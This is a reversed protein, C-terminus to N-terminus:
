IPAGDVIVIKPAELGIFVIIDKISGIGMSYLWAAANRTM